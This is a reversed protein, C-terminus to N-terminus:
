SEIGYKVGYLETHLELVAAEIASDVEAENVNYGQEALFNLVYKKKEKGDTFEYIQEAAQVGIRVWQLFENVNEAGWKAKALPLAVGTIFVVCLSIIAVALPTLDLM